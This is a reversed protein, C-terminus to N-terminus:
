ETPAQEPGLLGAAPSIMTLVMGTPAYDVSVVGGFDNAMVTNVLRSGFGKRAPSTVPPGGEERWELRLERPVSSSMSWSLRVRGDANSMAGYKAANTALEHLALALSVAQRPGITVSPGEIIYRGPGPIHPKLALQVVDALDAYAQAGTIAEDAAGFASLRAEFTALAAKSATERFTQGAVAGVMALTNRVRHRLESNILKLRNEALV